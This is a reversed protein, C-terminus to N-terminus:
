SAARYCCGVVRLPRSPSSAPVTGIVVRDARGSLRARQDPAHRRCCFRAELTMVALSVVDSPSLEPASMRSLGDIAASLDVNHVEAPERRIRDASEVVDLGLEATAFEHGCLYEVDTDGRVAFARIADRDILLASARYPVFRM